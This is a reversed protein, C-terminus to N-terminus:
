PVILLLDRCPALRHQPGRRNWMLPSAAILGVCVTMHIGMYLLAQAAPGTVGLRKAAFAGFAGKRIGEYVTDHGRKPLHIGLLLLWATYPVWWALYVLVPLRFLDPADQVPFLGPWAADVAASHWRVCWTFLIPTLHIFTVATQLSDHFVLANGLALVSWGLPGNGLAFMVAFANGGVERSALLDMRDRLPHYEPAYLTLARNCCYVPMLFNM